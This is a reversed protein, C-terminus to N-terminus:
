PPAPAPTPRQCTAFDRSSVPSFYRKSLGLKKYVPVNHLLRSRQFINYVAYSLKLRRVLSLM